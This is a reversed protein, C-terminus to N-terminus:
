ANIQWVDRGTHLFARHEVRVVLIKMEVVTTYAVDTM